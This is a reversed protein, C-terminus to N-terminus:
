HHAAEAGGGGNSPVEAKLHMGRLEPLQRGTLVGAVASPDRGAAQRRGHRPGGTPILSPMSSQARAAVGKVKGNGRALDVEGPSGKLPDQQLIMSDTGGASGRRNAAGTPDFNPASGGSLAPFRIAGIRANGLASAAEAPQTRELM